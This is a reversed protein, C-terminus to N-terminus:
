VWTFYWSVYSLGTYFQSATNEECFYTTTPFERSSVHFFRYPFQTRWGRKKGNCHQCVQWSNELTKKERFVRTHMHLLLIKVIIARTSGRKLEWAAIHLHKLLWVVENHIGLALEAASPSRISTVLALEESAKWLIVDAKANSARGVLSM